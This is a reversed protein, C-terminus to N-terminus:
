DQMTEDFDTLDYVWPLNASGTLWFYAYQILYIVVVLTVNAFDSEYAFKEITSELGEDINVQVNLSRLIFLALPISNPLGYLLAM